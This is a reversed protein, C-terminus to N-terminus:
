MIHLALIQSTLTHCDQQHLRTNPGWCSFPSPQSESTPGLLWPCNHLYHPLPWWTLPSSGRFKISGSPECSAPGQSQAIARGDQLAVNISKMAALPEKKVLTSVWDNWVPSRHEWHFVKWCPSSPHRKRLTEAQLVWVMCIRIVRGWRSHLYKQM